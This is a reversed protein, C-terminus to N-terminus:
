PVNHPFVRSLLFITSNVEQKRRNSFQLVVGGTVKFGTPDNCGLRETLVQM